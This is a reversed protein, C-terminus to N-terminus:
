EVASGMSRASSAQQGRNVRNLRRGKALVFYVRTNESSSAGFALISPNHGLAVVDPSFTALHVDGVRRLEGGAEVAEAPQRGVCRLAGVGDDQVVADDALSRLLTGDAM